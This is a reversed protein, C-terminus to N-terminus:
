LLSPSPTIRIPFIIPQVIATPASASTGVTTDKFASVTLTGSLTVNVLSM